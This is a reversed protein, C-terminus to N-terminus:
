ERSGLRPFIRAPALVEAGDAPKVHKVITTGDSKHIKIMYGKQLAKHHKDRVSNKLLLRLDYEPRLQDNMEPNKRKKM